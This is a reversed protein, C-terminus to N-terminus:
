VPSVYLCLPRSPFLFTLSPEFRELSTERDRNLMRIMIFFVQRLKDIEVM